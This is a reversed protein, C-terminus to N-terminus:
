DNQIARLIENGKYLWKLVSRRTAMSVPHNDKLRLEDLQLQKTKTNVILTLSARQPAFVQYAFYTGFILGYHYNILSNHQTHAEILLEQYNRIVKINDHCPIPSESYSDHWFYYANFADSADLYRNIMAGPYVTLDNLKQLEEIIADSGQAQLRTAAEKLDKLNRCCMLLRLPPSYGIACALRKVNSVEISIRKINEVNSERIFRANMLEPHEHLLGIFQLPISRNILQQSYPPLSQSKHSRKKPKKV